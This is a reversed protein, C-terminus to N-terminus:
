LTLSSRIIVLCQRSIINTVQSLPIDLDLAPWDNNLRNLEENIRNHLEAPPRETM